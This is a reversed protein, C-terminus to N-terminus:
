PHEIKLGDHNRFIRKLLGAIKEFQDIPITFSIEMGSIDDFDRVTQPAFSIVFQTRSLTAEKIGGYSVYRQIPVEAYIGQDDSDDEKVRQLILGDDMPEDIQDRAFGVTIAFDEDGGGIDKAHFRVIRAM